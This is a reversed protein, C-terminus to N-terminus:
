ISETRIAINLSGIGPRHVVMQECGVVQFEITTNAAPGVVVAFWRNDCGATIVGASYAQHHTITGNSKDTIAHVHLDPSRNAGPVALLCNTVRRESEATLWNSLKNPAARLVLASRHWSVPRAM